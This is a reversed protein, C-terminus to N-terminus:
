IEHKKENRRNLLLAITVWIAIFILYFLLANLTLTFTTNLESSTMITSIRLGTITTIVSTENIQFISYIYDFLFIFVWAASGSGIYKVLKRM